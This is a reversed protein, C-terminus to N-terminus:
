YRYHARYADRAARTPLVEDVRHLLDAELPNEGGAWYLCTLVHERLLLERSNAVSALESHDYVGYSYANRVVTEATPLFTEM